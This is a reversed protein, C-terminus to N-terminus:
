PKIYGIKKSIEEGASVLLSSIRKIDHHDKRKSAPLAVGVAAIVKNSHDRIPAAIGMIGEVFEDIEIAYGQRRVITLEKRFIKKDTITNPTYKKLEKKLLSTIEEPELYATIVKGLMGYTIPRIRGLESSLKVMEVGERKDLYIIQNEEKVGLLTTAKTENQLKTIPMIAAKRISFSTFVISGMEFLRLGLSYKRTEPDQQLLHRSELNYILRRATTINFGTHSVIEALTMEHKEFTFCELVDIAREISQVRWVSHKDKKKKDM